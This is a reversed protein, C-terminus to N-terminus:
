GAATNNLIKGGLVLPDDQTFGLCEIGGQGDSCISILATSKLGTSKRGWIAKGTKSSARFIAFDTITKSSSTPTLTVQDMVLNGYYNVGCYSSGFNDTFFINGTMYTAASDAKSIYNLWGNQASISNNFILSTFVLYFLNKLM